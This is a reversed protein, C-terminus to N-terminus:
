KVPTGSAAHARSMAPAIAHIVCIAVKTCRRPTVSITSPPDDWNTGERFSVYGRDLHRNEIPIESIGPPGLKWPSKSNTEPLTLSSYMEYAHNTGENWICPQYTGSTNNSGFPRLFHRSIFPPGWDSGSKPECHRPKVAMPPASISSRPQHFKTDFFIGFDPYRPVLPVMPISRGIKPQNSLINPEVTGATTSTTGTKPRKKSHSKRVFTTHFLFFLCVCVCQIWHKWCSSGKAQVGPMGFFILGGLFCASVSLCSILWQGSKNSSGVKHPELIVPIAEDAECIAEQPEWTAM